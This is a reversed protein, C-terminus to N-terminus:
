QCGHTITSTSGRWDANFAEVAYSLTKGTAVFTVDVFATSNPDLTAIVLGNRYVKYGAENDSRDKWTLNMTMTGGGDALECTYEYVSWVPAGPTFPTSSPVTAMPTLTVSEIPTAIVPANPAAPTSARAPLNCASIGAVLVLLICPVKLTKM